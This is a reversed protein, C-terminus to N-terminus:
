ISTCGTHFPAPATSKLPVPPLEWGSVRGSPVSLHSIVCDGINIGRGLLLIRVAMMLIFIVSVVFPLENLILLSVCFLALQNALIAKLDPDAHLYTPNAIIM